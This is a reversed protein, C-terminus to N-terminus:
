FDLPCSRVTDECNDVDIQWINALTFLLAFQTLRDLNTKRIQRYNNCAWERVCSSLLTESSDGTVRKRRTNTVTVTFTNDNDNNNNNNNSNIANIASISSIVINTSIGIFTLFDLVGGQPSGCEPTSLRPETQGAIVPLSVLLPLLPLLTVPLMEGAPCEHRPTGM